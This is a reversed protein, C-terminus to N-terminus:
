RRPATGLAARLSEVLDILLQASMVAVGVLISFKAPYIPIRVVSLTREKIQWSFMAAQYGQWFILGFFVLAAVAALADLTARARPRLHTYLLEVRIHGGRRQVYALSLFVIAVVLEATSETAGHVPSLFVDTGVVDATGVLVGLLIGISAVALLVIGLADVVQSLRRV